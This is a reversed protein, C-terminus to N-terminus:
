AARRQAPELHAAAVAPHEQELAFRAVFNRLQDSIAALEEAQASMEQVRASMEEASASVDDSATSQEEAVAAISQIAAAVQESQAAMEETAATNEEVVGRISAMAATVSRAGATMEQASAAIETLQRVTSDVATLIEELARGAQEARAAGETVRGIGSDTAAVAEGTAGQVQQILQAITRTERQSREALKRVEDAVVAFGRGHEGARAAEIAANLALLNTQEAIEDITEVVQGIQEGLAGLSQVKGALDTVVTRIEAMGAVADRVATAGQEAAARTQQSAVAVGQANSAVREVGAAMQTATASAAQVQSAQDAAGRAVAEIAQSLQGVATDTDRASRSTHQSGSAVNQIAESVRQVVTGTQASNRGLETSRDAVELAAGRVQGVLQRLGDLMGRYATGLVDRESKPELEQTLDGGAIARAMAAMHQQYSVLAHLAQAMQGIEDGSTVAVQQELDGEALRRLAGTLRRLPALLRAAFWTMLILGLLLLPLAILLTQRVLATSPQYVTTHPLVSALIWNGGFVPQYVVEYSDSSDQFTATGSRDRAMAQTLAQFGSSGFAAAAPFVEADEEAEEGDEHKRAHDKRRAEALVPHDLLLGNRTMLFSYGGSVSNAGVKQVFWELPIEFHLLGARQGDPLDIPTAHALVWDHVDPSFYPQESRYVQGVPTEITPEFFPNDSEDPSLDDDAAMVGKVCRADEAGHSGIVCIEDIAFTQELYRLEAQIDQLAAQRADEDGAAKALYLRNFAPDQRALLLSNAAKDALADIDGAVQQNERQLEARAQQLFLDNATSLMLATLAAAMTLMGLLVVTALKTRISLTRLRGGGGALGLSRAAGLREDKSADIDTRTLM